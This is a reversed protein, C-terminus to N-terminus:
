WTTACYTITACTRHWGLCLGYVRQALLSHVSHQMSARRRDDGLAEAAARTLGFREDVRKLLEFWPLGQGQLMTARQDIRRGNRTSPQLRM